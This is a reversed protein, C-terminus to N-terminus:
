FSAHELFGNREDHRCLKCSQATDHEGVVLSGVRHTITLRTNSDLGADSPAVGPAGPPIEQAEIVGDDASRNSAATSTATPIGMWAMAEPLSMGAQTYSQLARSLTRHDRSQSPNFDITINSDLKESLEQAVRTGLPEIVDLFLERRSQLMANGDGSWIKESIGYAHLVQLATSDRMAISTEPVTPGFRKQDYDSRPAALAGQGFGQATTDLPTIAGKGKVLAIRVGSRAIDSVGDPIPM